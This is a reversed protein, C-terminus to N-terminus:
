PKSRRQEDAMRRADAIRREVVADVALVAAPLLALDLTVVLHVIDAQAVVRDAKFAPLEVEARAILDRVLRVVVRVVVAEVVVRGQRLVEVVAPRAVTGVAVLFFLVSTDGNSKSM